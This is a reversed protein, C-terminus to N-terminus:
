TESQQAELGWFISIGFWMKHGVRKSVNKLFEVISVDVSEVKQTPNKQYSHSLLM